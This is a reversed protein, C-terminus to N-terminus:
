KPIDKIIPRGALLTVKWEGKLKVLSVLDLSSVEKTRNQHKTRVLVHAYELEDITELGISLPRARMTTKIQELVEDTVDFREQVGHHYAIYFDVPDMKEVASLSTQNLKRVMSIEEDITSAQKIRYIYRQMLDVVSDKDLLKVSEKWEQSTAHKLYQFVVQTAPHTKVDEQAIAPASLCCLLAAAISFLPISHRIM